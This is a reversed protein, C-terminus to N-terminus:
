KIINVWQVKGVSRLGYLHTLKPLSGHQGTNVYQTENLEYKNVDATDETQLTDYQKGTTRCMGVYM